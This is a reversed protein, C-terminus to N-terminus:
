SQTWPTLLEEPVLRGSAREAEAAEMEKRKRDRDVRWSGTIALTALLAIFILTFPAV